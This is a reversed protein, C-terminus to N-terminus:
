WHFSALVEFVIAVFSVLLFIIHRSHGPLIVLGKTREGAININLPMKYAGAPGYYM